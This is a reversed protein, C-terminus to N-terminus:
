PAPTEEATDAIVEDEPEDALEAPEASEPADEDTEGPEPTSPLDAAPEAVEPEEDLPEESAILEPDAAPVELEETIPAKDEIYAPKWIDLMASLPSFFFLVGIIALLLVLNTLFKQM